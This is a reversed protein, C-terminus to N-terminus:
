QSVFVEGSILQKRVYMQKSDWITENSYIKNFINFINMHLRLSKQSKHYDGTFDM